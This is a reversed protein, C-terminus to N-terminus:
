HETTNTAQDILEDKSDKGWIFAAMVADFWSMPTTSEIVLVFTKKDQSLRPDFSVQEETAKQSKKVKKVKLPGKAMM